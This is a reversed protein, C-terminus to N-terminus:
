NISRRGGVTGSKDYSDYSADRIVAGDRVRTLGASRRRGSRMKMEEDKPHLARSVGLGLIM